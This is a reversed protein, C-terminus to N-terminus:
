ALESLRSALVLQTIQPVQLYQSLCLEEGEDKVYEKVYGADTSQKGSKVYMMYETGYKSFSTPYIKLKSLCSAFWLPVAGLVKVECLYVDEPLLKKGFSGKHLAVNERRTTINTDFTVRFDRDAKGVYAVRDYSLYVKPVVKNVRKFYDIEALVQKNVKPNRVIVEEATMRGDMYEIADELRMSTRRKNVVGKCKKKIEVFVDDDLTIDGYARVRLKEKYVPKAISKRILEDDWTDYYINCIRYMKGSRNYEDYVMHGDMERLIGEYQKKSLLYKKECRNFVEIVM